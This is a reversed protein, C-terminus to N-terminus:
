AHEICNKLAKIKIKELTSRCAQPSDAEVILTCVPMGTEIVTGPRPLDHCQPPWVPSNIICLSTDAFLYSLLRVRGNDTAPLTSLLHGTCADLHWQFWEPQTLLEVSSTIRPNIELIFLQDAKDIMFDLSNLGKLGTAKVIASLAAQLNQQNAPSPRDPQLICELTFSGTRNFQRNWGMIRAQTGDAIFCVSRSEGDIFRQYFQGEALPTDADRKIGSGGASYFNKILTNEPRPASLHTQPCPLELRNLLPFFQKPERLLSITQLDNGILTIHPPLDKLAPYFHEIGTGCILECAQGNSLEDLSQILQHGTLQSLPPLQRWSEAVACSDLDGFCDAVRVPYGARTASEAIFRGSQAFILLPSRSQM